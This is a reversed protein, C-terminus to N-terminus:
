FPVPTDYTDESPMEKIARITASYKGYNSHHILDDKVMSILLKRVYGYKTEPWEAAKRIEEIGMERNEESLIKILRRQDRTVEYEDGEGIYEWHGDLFRLAIVMEEADKDRVKLFAYDDKPKRELVWLVDQAGGYGASGMINDFSDEAETKRLHTLMALCVHHRKMLEQLPSFMEYVELYSKQGKTSGVKELKALVDIIILGYNHQLIADGLLEVGGEALPPFTYKLHFNDAVALTPQIQRARGQLRARGDELALYLVPRAMPCAYHRFAAHGVALAIALDFILWSKGRKSKGAFLLMGEHLLGEFLTLPPPITAELLTTLTEDPAFPGRRGQPVQTGNSALGAPLSPASMTRLMTLLSEGFASLCAVIAHQDTRNPTCQRAFSEMDRAELVKIRGFHLRTGNPLSAEMNVALDGFRNIMLQTAQLDLMPWTARYSGVTDDITLPIM